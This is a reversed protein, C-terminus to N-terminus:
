GDRAARGDYVNPREPTEAWSGVALPATLGDRKSVDLLQAVEEATGLSPTDAISTLVRSAVSHGLRLRGTPSLNNLHGSLWGAAFADGAGVAELVEVRPSAVRVMERDCFGVAEIHADKVVVHQPRDILNRIAQANPTGWLALAEDRGVFVVDSHQALKLLLDPTGSTSLQSRHNVDFSILADVPRDIILEQMMLNCDPSLQATIGSLHLIRPTVSAWVHSMSEPSMRSAASGTRYYYVSTGRAEPDKFYVGTPADVLRRSQSTDVGSERLSDLILTAFPDDGLQGAWASTHGLAALHVAVNSEAGGARLLLPTEADLRGHAEPAVMVMTEGLCLADVSLRSETM